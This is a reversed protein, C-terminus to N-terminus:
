DQEKNLKRLKRNSLRFKVKINKNKEKKATKDQKLQLYFKSGADAFTTKDPLTLGDNSKLNSWPLSLWINMYEDFKLRGEVFVHLATSQIETRPIILEGNKIEFTQVIPQFRLEKFREDKMLTSNEMIPKYDFLELDSLEINIVGNLSNMNLRGENNVNGSAKITYNLNGAIKEANRLDEDNFYNLRSALEYLDINNANININVPINQDNSMGFDVDFELSGGYFNFHTDRIKLSDSTNFLLNLGFDTLDLNKHKLSDITISATPYFSKNINVLSSKFKQLDFEEGKKESTRRKSSAIRIFEKLDASDLYPSYISFNSSHNTTSELNNIFDSFHDISGSFFISSKGPLDVDLTTLTAVNDAIRIHMSDVPIQLAAANYDVLTNSIKLDGFGQSHLVKLNQAQAKYQGHFEFDGSQFIFNKTKLYDNLNKSKGKISILFNLDFPNNNLSDLASTHANIQGNINATTQKYNFDLHYLRLISDNEFYVLAKVNETILDQFKLSDIALEIKPNFRNIDKFIHHLASKNKPKILKGEQKLSRIAELSSDGDIYPATIKLDISGKDTNDDILFSPFQKISGKLKIPYMEGIELNFTNLLLNSKNVFLTLSDVNIDIDAPAYHLRTHNLTLDGKANHLVEKLEKLNGTVNGYFKYEGSDIRFLKINFLEAFVSVSGESIAEANIYIADRLHSEPEPVVVNGKLSTFAELYNFDFHRLLITKSNILDIESKLNSITVDNYTLAGINIEFKPHFQHYIADLTEHLNNRDDIQTNSHPVFQKALAILENIHLAESDVLISSTTPSEPNKTLLAAINKLQGKLVLDQGNPFNVILRRLISQERELALDITQIPLQLGNKKLIVRTDKLKFRGTAKNIFHHSKPIDGSITADFQFTGGKFDFNEMEMLKVLAENSGELNVDAQVFNLAEPTSQYYSNDIKLKIDDSTARLDNFTIKLDSPSKYKIKLSDIEYIDNTLHAKFSLNQLHFKEDIIIENDETSFDVEIKPDNGFAFEGTLHLDTNLTKKLDYIDLANTINKPLLGKVAKFDTDSNKLNFEYNDSASLDFNASLRFDQHDVKFLFEPVSIHNNKLDITFNPNGKVRAGNFYSGKKTNFGLSNVTIDMRMQGDLQIDDGTYSGEIRHIDFNFNKELIHNKTEYSVNELSFKVDDTHLWEPMKIGEHSRNEKNLKLQQHYEISRESIVESTITANKITIHEFQIDGRLLKGAGIVLKAEEINISSHKDSITDIHTQKIHKLTFGVKPFGRIFSANVKGITLTGSNNENYWDQFVNIM